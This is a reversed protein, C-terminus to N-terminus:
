LKYQSTGELFVLLSPGIFVIQQSGESYPYKLMLTTIWLHSGDLGVTLFFIMVQWESTNNMERIKM